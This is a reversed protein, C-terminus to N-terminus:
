PQAHDWLDYSNIGYFSRLGTSLLVFSVNAVCIAYLCVVNDLDSIDDRRPGALRKVSTTYGWTKKAYHTGTLFLSPARQIM